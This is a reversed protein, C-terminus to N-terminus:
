VQQYAQHLPGSAFGSFTSGATGVTIKGKAAVIAELFPLFLRGLPVGDLENELRLMEGVTEVVAGDNRELDPHDFDSLVFTCPFTDFFPKLNPDTSPSRSDTALYLPINLAKLNPDTHLPSRCNLNRLLASPSGTPGLLFGWTKDDNDEVEARKQLFHDDSSSPPHSPTNSILDSYDFVDNDHPGWTSFTIPDPSVLASRKTSKLREAFRTHRRRREAAGEKEIGKIEVAEWMEEVEDVGYGLSVVLKKWAQEMNEKAHKSFDGDGVRAHVGVFNKPGGLRAVIAEAPRLLWENDFAMARAFSQAWDKAEPHSSHIRGTGFLSGLLLVRQPLASLTPLSVERNWKGDDLAYPEILPSDVTKERDTFVFDHSQRDRLVYIDKEEVGLLGEIAKERMDWRDVIEVGEEKVKELDCLFNYSLFTDRYTHRCEPSYSKCEEATLETIPYGDPRLKYGKALWNKRTVSAHELREAIRDPDDAACTPCPFSALTSPYNAPLNLPSAESLDSINFSAPNLLMIDTWAKALDDYPLTSTPWGIWIPPVLVTRGLLKGLLLANQLAIRQNHVGSHPLFGIYRTENNQGSSSRPNPLLNIPIPGTEKNLAEVEEVLQPEFKEIPPLPIAEVQNDEKEIEVLDEEVVSFKESVKEKLQSVKKVMKGSYSEIQSRDIGGYVTMAALSFLVLAIGGGFVLWSKNRRTRKANPPLKLEFYGKSTKELEAHQLPSLLVAEHPSQPPHFLNYPSSPTSPRTRPSLFADTEQWSYVSAPSLTLSEPPSSRNFSRHSHSPSRSISRPPPTSPRSSPPLPQYDQVM